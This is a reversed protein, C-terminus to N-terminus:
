CDNLLEQIAMCAQAPIVSNGLASIRGDYVDKSIWTDGRLIGAPGVPSPMEPVQLIRSWERDDSLYPPWGELGALSWLSEPKKTSVACKFKLKSCEANHGSYALIFVRERSHPAGVDHANFVKWVADYRLSALGQLVQEMAEGGNSWLLGKVNEILVLPPLCEGIIRLFEPWMWRDDQVGRGHGSKSVPQCPFGGIVADVCGLFRSADFTKVDSWIPAPALRGVAMNSLLTELSLAEREVYCVPKSNPFAMGFGLDLGGIGSFLSIYRSFSPHDM